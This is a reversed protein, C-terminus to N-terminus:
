FGADRLLREYERVSRLRLRIPTSDNWYGKFEADECIRRAIEADRLTPHQSKIERYKSVLALFRRDDWVAAGKKRGRTRGFLEQALIHALIALDPARTHDLEFFKAAKGLAQPNCELVREVFGAIFTPSANRKIQNKKLGKKYFTLRDLAARDAM